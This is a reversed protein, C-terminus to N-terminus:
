EVGMQRRRRAAAKGTVKERRYWASDNRSAKIKVPAKGRYVSGHVPKSKGPLLAPGTGLPSLAFAAVSSSLLSRM